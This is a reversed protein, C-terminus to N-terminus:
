PATGMAWGTPVPERLLAQHVGVFEVGARCGEALFSRLLSAARAPWQHGLVIGGTRLVPRVLALCEDEDRDDDWDRFGVDWGVVACGSGAIPREVPPDFAGRGHPLRLLPQVPGFPELAARNAAIEDRVGDEHLRDFDVHSDGHLGLVSGPVARGIARSLEDPNARAWRGEVFFTLPVGARVSVDVLDDLSGWRPMPRDPHEVDVTVAVVATM